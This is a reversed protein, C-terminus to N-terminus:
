EYSVELLTKLYVKLNQFDESKNKFLVSIKSRMENIKQNIIQKEQNVNIIECNRFLDYNLLVLLLLFNCFTHFM